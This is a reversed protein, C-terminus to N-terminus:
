NGKQQDEVYKIQKLLENKLSSYDDTYKFAIYSFSIGNFISSRKSSADDVSIFFEHVIHRLRRQHKHRRVANGIKKNVIFGFKPPDDNNGCIYILMGFEGKVRKGEKYIRDFDHSSRLRFKSKLM